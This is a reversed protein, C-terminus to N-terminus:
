LIHWFYTFGLNSTRSSDSLLDKSTSANEKINECGTSLLSFALVPSSKLDRDPRRRVMEWVGLRGVM